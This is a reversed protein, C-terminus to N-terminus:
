PNRSVSAVLRGDSLFFPDRYLHEDDEPDTLFAYEVADGNEHLAPKSVVQTDIFQLIRGAKHTGFEPAVVGTVVEFGTGEDDHVQNLFFGDPIRVKTEVVDRLNADGNFARQIFGGNEHLGTHRYTECQLGDQRIQWPLFHNFRLPNVVGYKTQAQAYLIDHSNGEADVFRGALTGEKGDGEWKYFPNGRVPEPYIEDGAAAVHLADDDGNVFAELHARTTDAVRRYEGAGVDNEDQYTYPEFFDEIDDRIVTE